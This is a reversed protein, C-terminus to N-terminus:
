VVSKRDVNAVKYEGDEELLARCTKMVESLSFNVTRQLETVGGRRFTMVTCGETCSIYLNVQHASSPKAGEREILKLTQVAGNGVCDLAHVELNLARAFRMYSRILDYPIAYIALRMQHAGEGTAKDVISWVLKHQAVDIPFYESANSALMAPIKKEPIQPILVERSVIKPSDMLFSASSATVGQELCAKRFLASFAENMTVFGDKVTEPPTPISFAHHVKPNKTGKEMEVIRTLEEGVTICLLKPAGINMKM